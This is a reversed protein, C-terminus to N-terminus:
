GAIARHLMEEIRFGVAPPHHLSATGLDLYRANADGSMLGLTATAALLALAMGQGGIRALAGFLYAGGALLFAICGWAVLASPLGARDASLLLPLALALAWVPERRLLAHATSVAFAGVFVLAMSTTPLDFM